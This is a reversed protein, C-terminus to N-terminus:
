ASIGEWAATWVAAAALAATEIRLITSALRVSEAGGSMLLRTEEDTFGGEPGIVLTVRGPPGPRPRDGQPSLLVLRRNSALLTPCDVVPGIVPLVPRRCQKLAETAVRRVRELNGPIREGRACALPLIEGVGLETLQRVLDAFRDGKPAACAVTIGQAPGAPIEMVESVDVNVEHRGLAMVSGIGVRGAGDACRVTEGVRLRLVDRVHHAEDGTITCSGVHLPTILLTRM